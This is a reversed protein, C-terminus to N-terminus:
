PYYVAYFTYDFPSGFGVPYARVCYLEGQVPVFGIKESSSPAIIKEVIPPKGNILDFYRYVSFNLYNMPSPSDNLITLTQKYNSLGPFVYFDNDASSSISGHLFFQGELEGVKMNTIASAQAPINNPEAEDQAFAATAFSLSVVVSLLASM